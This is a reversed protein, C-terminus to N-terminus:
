WQFPEKTRLELDVAQCVRKYRLWVYPNVAQPERPPRNKWTRSPTTGREFLHIAEYSFGSLDALDQKSLGLRERWQRAKEHETM